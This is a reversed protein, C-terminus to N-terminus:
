DVIQQTIHITLADLQLSVHCSPINELLPALIPVTAGTKSAAGTSARNVSRVKLQLARGIYSIGARSERWQTVHWVSEAMRYDQVPPTQCSQLGTMWRQVLHTLALM